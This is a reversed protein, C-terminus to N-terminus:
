LQYTCPLLSTPHRGPCSVLKTGGHEFRLNKPLLYVTNFFTSTVNNPSKQGGGCDNPAEMTIQRQPITGGQGGDNRGQNCALIFSKTEYNSMKELNIM